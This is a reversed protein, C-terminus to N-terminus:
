IGSKRDGICALKPQTKERLVQDAFARSASKEDPLAACNAQLSKRREAEIKANPIGVTIKDLSSSGYRPCETALAPLNRAAQAGKVKLEERVQGRNEPSKESPVINRVYVICRL